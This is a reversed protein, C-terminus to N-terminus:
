CDDAFGVEPMDFDTEVEEGNLIWEIAAKFGKDYQDDDILVDANLLRLMDEKTPIVTIKRSEKVKGM